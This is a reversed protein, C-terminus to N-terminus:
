PVEFVIDAYWYDTYVISPYIDGQANNYQGTKITLNASQSLSSFPANAIWIWSAPAPAWFSVVYQTGAVIPYPTIPTTVWGGTPENSTSLQLHRVGDTTWLGLSHSSNTDTVPDGLATNPKYFKIATITGNVSTSFNAAIVIDNSYANSSNDALSPSVDFSYATVPPQFLGANQKALLTFESDGVAPDGGSLVAQKALLSFKTDGVATKGKLSAVRKALLSFKTDGMTPKGGSLALAKALLTSKTDGVAVQGGLLVVQKALLTFVTDGIQTSVPM